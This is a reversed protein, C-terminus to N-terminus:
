DSVSSKRRRELCSSLGYRSWPFGRASRRPLLRHFRLGVGYVVWQFLDLQSMPSSLRRIILHFFSPSQVANRLRLFTIQQQM